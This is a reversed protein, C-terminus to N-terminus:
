VDEIKRQGADFADITFKALGRADNHGMAILKLAEYFKKGNYEFRRANYERDYKDDSAKRRALKAAPDHTKCYAEDPGYGRKRTCQHYHPWGGQERRVEECCRTYDPKAGQPNGAWNGYKEPYCANKM